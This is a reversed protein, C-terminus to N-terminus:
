NLNKPRIPIWVEEESNTSENIYKAGLIEFHPRSDLMYKSNPIWETFIYNFFTGAASAAGKYTFVAYLGGALTFSTMNAPIDNFDAVEAAAWKTFEKTPDFNNFYDEPFIQMSYLDGGIQNSINKRNPMFSQWLMGTLKKAISMNLNLGVLRKEDLIEIRPEM